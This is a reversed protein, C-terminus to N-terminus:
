PGPQRLGQVEKTKNHLTFHINFRKKSRGKTATKSSHSTAGHPQKFTAAPVNVSAQITVHISTQGTNPNDVQQTNPINTQQEFHIAESTAVVPNSCPDQQSQFSGRDEESDRRAKKHLCKTLADMEEKFAYLHKRAVRAEDDTLCTNKSTAKFDKLM